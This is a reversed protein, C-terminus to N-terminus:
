APTRTDWSSVSRAWPCEQSQWGSLLRPDNV